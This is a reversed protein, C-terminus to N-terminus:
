SFLPKTKILIEMKLGNKESSYNKNTIILEYLIIGFRLSVMQLFHRFFDPLKPTTTGSFLFAERIM